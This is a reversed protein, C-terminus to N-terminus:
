KKSLADLALYAMLGMGTKLAEEDIDFTSSHVSSTIGKAPNGTGLRYFCGPLVHTYFAFDEATPRIELEVVNEKGMYSEAAAIMKRTLAEDNKLSPYGKRIEFDVKAGMSEVLGTALKKIREHAEMRWQEDFSRFTGEMYVTQPVVNTAGEAIVKGFSLVTPIFPKSWRSVVQQLAVILHASILVPDVLQFPMGGHGGKGTITVYIEDTSAMYLGPRFGVKGVPLETMVHQGIIAEPAPNELAGERIMHSAGGPLKEEGPQFLLRVTGNFEGKLDHLIHAAGLLSSTHVDHGCAHMVGPNLSTYSTENKELIPLADLDARLAITEGRSRGEIHALLGTGAISVYPFGIRDLQAAVFKVTEHEEFSLEPHSHLHRRIDKVEGFYAEAKQKIIEQLM